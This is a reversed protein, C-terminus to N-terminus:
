TSSGYDHASVYLEAYITGPYAQWHHYRVGMCVSGSCSHKTVTYQSRPNAHQVIPFLRSTDTLTVSTECLVIYVSTNSLLLKACTRTLKRGTDRVSPNRCLVPAECPLGARGHLNCHLLWRDTVTRNSQACNRLAAHPLMTWCAQCRECVNRCTFQPATCTLMTWCAQRRECVSVAGFQGVVRQM